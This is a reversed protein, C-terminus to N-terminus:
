LGSDMEELIAAAADAPSPAATIPRGVVIWRAGSRVASGPTAVWQQDGSAAGAPRIGPTLVLFGSGCRQRISPLAAAPAVVGDLGSDRAAEARRTAEAIMVEASLAERDGDAQKTSTLVTVGLIAPRPEGRERLRRAALAMAETGAVVHMDILDADLEALREAARAVTNPIDHLKLDVFVRKGAHKLWRVSDPGAASWLELGVKYWLVADGLAGVLREMEAIGPVDCAVILRDRATM